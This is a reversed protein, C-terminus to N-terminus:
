QHEDRLHHRLCYNSGRLKHEYCYRNTCKVFFDGKNGQCDEHRIEEKHVLRCKTSSTM